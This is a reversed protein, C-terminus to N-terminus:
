FPSIRFGDVLLRLTFQGFGSPSPDQDFQGDGWTETRGSVGLGGSMNFTFRGDRITGGQYRGEGLDAYDTGAQSTDLDFAPLGSEVGVAYLTSYFTVECTSTDFDERSAGFFVVAPAPFPDGIRGATVAQTFMREDTNFVREFVPIDDPEYQTTNAGAADQDLWARFKFGGPPVPARRDGGSGAMVFMRNPQFTDPLMTVPAVIPHEGGMRAFVNFSWQGPDPESTDLKWVQGQLDPIYVRTVFDKSEAMDEAHPNYLTPPAPLGNKAIAPADADQVQGRFYVAGDEARLAFLYEGEDAGAGDCGYGGGAFLLWQDVLPDNQTPDTRTDVNGLGPISWTEGLGDLDGDDIGERNGVNWLLRLGGPGSGANTIDLVTLFRGGRGRGFATLTHWADDGGRDSRLFADKVVPPSSLMFRHNTVGNNDQVVLRVFDKVTDRSGPVELPDLGVADDPLFGWVEKGTGADFAHLIGPNAAYLVLTRRNINDWYFGDGAVTGGVGYETAHNAPPDFDPSRPPSLAVGVTGATSEWLKWTAEGSEEFLSFNLDGSSNYITATGPDISLRYGRMVKVVIDRADADTLAGVGDVDSLYGAQVGLDEPRVNASDFPRLTKEGRRNFYLPREDPDDDQLEVGADWLAEFSAERASRPDDNDTVRYINTARLHGRFGPVEVSTTLQVNNRHNSRVIRAERIAEGDSPDPFVDSYNLSTNTTSAIVEKVSAVVPAGLTVETEPVGIRALIDRMTQVLDDERAGAFFAENLLARDRQPVLNAGSSMWAITSLRARETANDIGFGVLFVNGKSGDLLPDITKLAFEGKLGANYSARDGGATSSVLVNPNSIDPRMTVSNNLPPPNGPLGTYGGDECECTDVGDTIHIVFNKQNALLTDIFSVTNGATLGDGNIYSAIDSFSVGIPTGGAADLGALITRVAPRSDSACTGPNVFAADDLGICADPTDPYGDGNADPPVPGCKLGNRRPQTGYPVFGWNVLPRGAGDVLVDMLRNIARKALDLKSFSEGAPLENMSGSTDLMVWVNHRINSGLIDLPDQGRQVLCPAVSQARGTNSWAFAVVVTALALASRKLTRNWMPM